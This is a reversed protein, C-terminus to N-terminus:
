FTVRRVPTVNAVSYGATLDLQLFDASIGALTSLVGPPLILPADPFFGPVYVWHVLDGANPASFLIPWTFGDPNLGFVFGSGLPLTTDFSILLYGTVASPVGYHPIPQINLDGTGGGTTTVSFVYQNVTVYNTKVKAASGNTGDTATLTVTYTGPTLYTFTPNQLASDPVSDGDFDWSWFLVGGPDSTYTTDFFTVSLPANGSTTSAVFNPFIGVTLPEDAGRTPPVARIGADIDDTVAAVVSGNQFGATTNLVHLDTSSVFAAGGVLTNLEQGVLNPTTLAQWAALTYTTTAVACEFAGVAPDYVNYDLITPVFATTAEFRICCGGVGDQKLLNNSVEAATFNMQLALCPANLTTTTMSVSNNAVIGGPARRVVIGGGYLTQALGTAGLGACNWVFNNVVTCNTSTSGPGGIFIGRGMCDHVRNRRILAGDSVSEAVIAGTFINSIQGTGTVTSNGALGDTAYVECDEVTFNPTQYAYIGAGSNHATCGRVTITNCGTAIIAAGSTTNLGANNTAVDLYELTVHTPGTGTTTNIGLRIAQFLTFGAQTTAVGAIQPGGIGSFVVPNLPGTGPFTPLHMGGYPVGTNIVAFSVPGAVGNLVLANAAEQLSAYNFGGTPVSNDVTYTGSLAQASAAASVLVAALAARFPTALKM